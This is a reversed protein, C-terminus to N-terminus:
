FCKVSVLLFVPLLNNPDNNSSNEDIHHVHPRDKGCIACSHSYEDLVNERIPKPISERRM